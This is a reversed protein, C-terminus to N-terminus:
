LMLIKPRENISFADNYFSTNLWRRLTCTEWTVDTWIENYPQCDLAYRSILLAKGDKVDLVRWEIPEKYSSSNQWYSGFTIIDGTRINKFELNNESSASISAEVIDDKLSDTENNELSIWLAPRVGITGDDVDNGFSIIFGEHVVNTARNSKLGPSRLWWRCSAKDNTKIFDNVWIGQKIAHQTAACMRSKTDIIIASEQNIKSIDFYQKAQEISLLFVKDKTDNGQNTDYYEPNADATVTTIAIKDQENSTFATNLFDSNLWRRLTCTEWTADAYTENYPQCDLAYKSIVLAKDNKVDLVNWEIPEKALSSNQWYSGFTITDGIRANKYNTVM